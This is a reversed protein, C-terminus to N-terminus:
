GGNACLWRSLPHWLIEPARRGVIMGVHGLPLALFEPMKPTASLPVIRDTTSAVALSPCDAPLAVPRDGVRWMGTGSANAAYFTEFLDRGAALTLPPGANAWDEVALFAQASRSAPAIEGFDAYKRITRAPDLSWFGSQLVEMPVYGLRACTPAASAWLKAIMARDAAPLGDFHWPAAITALARPRILSAAGIALTGGLCYGVLIPSRELTALLPVLREMVHGALDLGADEISPAGWDVLHVDHGAAAMNRLMSHQPTLDLVRPPNVISPIFVVPHRGNEHGYRRLRAAGATAVTAVPSPAAPREAQQYARLGALARRRLM